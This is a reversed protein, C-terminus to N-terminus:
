RAPRRPKPAPVARRYRVAFPLLFYTAAVGLATVFSLVSLNMGPIQMLLLNVGVMLLVAAPLLILLGRWSTIRFKKGCHPCTGTKRFRSRRVQGYLFRAGCYPCLPLKLM